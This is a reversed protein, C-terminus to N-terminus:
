PKFKLRDALELLFPLPAAENNIAIAIAADSEPFYAVTARFGNISGSKTVVWDITGNARILELGYGYSVEYDDSYEHTIFISGDNLKAPSVIESILANDFLPSHDIRLANSLRIFDAPRSMIDGTGFPAVVSVFSANKTQGNEYVYGAVRATIIDTDSGVRTVTMKLPKIVSADLFESFSKGSVKEIVLGLILFNTNSYKGNSGPEFELPQGAVLALSEQPTWEKAENAKFADTESFDPIGSTHQLLNTLTIQDSHPFDPIYLSLKDSTNLKHQQKLVMIAQATFHKSVSAIRFVSKKSLRHRLELNEYGTQFVRTSKGHRTIAIAMGPVHNTRMFRKVLRVVNVAYSPTAFLLAASLLAAALLHSRFKKTLM